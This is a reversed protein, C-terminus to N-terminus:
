LDPPQKLRDKRWSKCLKTRPHLKCYNEAAGVSSYFFVILPPTKGMCFDSLRRAALSKSLGGTEGLGWMMIADKFSPETPSIARLSWSRCNVISKKVPQEPLPSMTANAVCPALVIVVSLIAKNM